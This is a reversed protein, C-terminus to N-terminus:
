CAEFIKIRKDLKELVDWKVIYFFAQGKQNARTHQVQYYGQEIADFIDVTPIIAFSLLENNDNIYSQITYQPYISLGDNISEKRKAYETKTGSEREARITFTAWNKNSIQIRNAVGSIQNNKIWLLDIGAFLDLAKCVPDDKGEISVFKGGLQIELEPKLIDKFLSISTNIATTFNSSM